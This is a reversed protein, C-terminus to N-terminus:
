FVARLRRSAEILKKPHVRCFHFFTAASYCALGEQKNGGGADSINTVSAIM